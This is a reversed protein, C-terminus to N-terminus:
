NVHKEERRKKLKVKQWNLKIGNIVDTIVVEKIEAIIIVEM